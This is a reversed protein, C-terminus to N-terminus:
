EEFFPFVEVPGASNSACDRALMAAWLHSGGRKSGDNEVRSVGSGHDIQFRLRLEYLLTRSHTESKRESPHILSSVFPFRPAPSPLISDIRQNSYNLTVRVISCEQATLPKAVKPEPPYQRLFYSGHSEKNMPNVNTAVDAERHFRCGNGQTSQEETQWVDRDCLLGERRLGSQSQYVREDSGPGVAM